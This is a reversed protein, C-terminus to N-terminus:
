VFSVSMTTLTARCISHKNTKSNNTELSSENKSSTGSSVNSNSISENKSSANSDVEGAPTSSINNELLSGNNSSATESQVQTTVESEYIVIQNSLNSENNDTNKCGSFLVLTLAISIIFCVYKKM